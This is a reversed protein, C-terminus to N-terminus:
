YLSLNVDNRVKPRPFYGWGGNAPRYTDVESTVNKDWSGGIGTTTKKTGQVERDSQQQQLQQQQQEMEQKKQQIEEEMRSAVEDIDPELSPIDANSKREKELKLEISRKEMLKEQIKELMEEDIEDDDDFIDDDEDEIDIGVDNNGKEVTSTRGGAAGSGSTSSLIAEGLEPNLKSSLLKSKTKGVKAQIKDAYQDISKNNDSTTSPSPSSSSSSSSPPSSSKLKGEKKLNM